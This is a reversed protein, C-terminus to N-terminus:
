KGFKGEIIASAIQEPIGPKLDGLIQNGASTFYLPLKCSYLLNFCAGFSGTEDLKTLILGKLGFQKLSKEAEFL